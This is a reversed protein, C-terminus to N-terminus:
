IKDFIIKKNKNNTPVLWSGVEKAVSPLAKPTGCLLLCLGGEAFPQM